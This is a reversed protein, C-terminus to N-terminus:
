VAKEASPPLIPRHRFVQNNQSGRQISILVARIKEEEKPMVIVEVEEGM